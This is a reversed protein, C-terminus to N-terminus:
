KHWNFLTEEVTTSREGLAKQKWTVMSSVNVERDSVTTTIRITRIFNTEDGATYGYLNNASDYRIAPCAGSCATVANNSPDIACSSSVCAELGTLWDLPPTTLANSDRANRIYELGEQALFFATTQDRVYSASAIGNAAISMPGLIATILITMAVLSEILTFGLNFAFMKQKM